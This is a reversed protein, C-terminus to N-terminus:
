DEGVTFGQNRRQMITQKNRLTPLPLRPNTYGRTVVSLVFLFYGVLVVLTVLMVPLLEALSFFMRELTM